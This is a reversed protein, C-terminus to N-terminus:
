ADPHVNRLHISTSYSQTHGATTVTLAVQVQDIWPREADLRGNDNGVPPGARDLDYWTTVGVSPDQGSRNQYRYDSSRYFLEFASVGGALLPQGSVGATAPTCGGPIVQGPVVALQRSAPDWCFTEVEPAAQDLPADPCLAPTAGLPVVPETASGVGAVCGDGDFDAQVTVSTVADPRYGPGDPNQVAVIAPLGIAAGTSSRGTLPVASSLDAGLRDLAARAQATLDVQSSTAAASGQAAVITSLVVAGIVAALVMAVLLEVLSVGSDGAATRNM